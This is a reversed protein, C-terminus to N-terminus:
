EADWLKEAIEEFSGRTADYFSRWREKSWIEMRNSVGVIVVDRKIDPTSRSIPLFSSGAQRDFVLEV